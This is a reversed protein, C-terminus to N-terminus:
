VSTLYDLAKRSATLFESIVQSADDPRGKLSWQQFTTEYERMEQRLAKAELTSLRGLKDALETAAQQFFAFQQSEGTTAM